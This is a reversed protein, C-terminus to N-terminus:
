LATQHVEFSFDHTMVDANLIKGPPALAVSMKICSREWHEHSWRMTSPVAPLNPMKKGVDDVQSDQIHFFRVTTSNALAHYLHEAKHIDHGQSVLRDATRKLLGRVGGPAGKGM